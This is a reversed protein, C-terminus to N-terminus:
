TQVHAGSGSVHGRRGCLYEILLILFLCVHSHTHWHALAFLWYSCPWWLSPNAEGAPRWLDPVIFPKFM